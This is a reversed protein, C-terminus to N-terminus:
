PKEPWAHRPYRRSLEKRIAPYSREWFGKLDSTVQVARKNPALLHLTLPLRGGLISPGTTLGFFDQLRSEIWPPRGLAYQVKCKRQSNLQVYSPTLKEFSSPASNGFFSFVEYNWDLSRLESFGIKNEIARIFAEHIKKRSIELKFLDPNSEALTLRALLIELDARDSVRSLREIWVDISLGEEPIPSFGLGSTMLVHSANLRSKPESRNELLILQDFVMRESATVIEKESDWILEETERIQNPKLEFLWDVSIPCLSRVVLRSGTRADKMEQIELAIFAESSDVIQSSSPTKASGGSSFILETEGMRIRSVGSKAERKKAVRDPFGTLICFPLKTEDAMKNARAKGKSGLASAVKAIRFDNTSMQSALQSLADLSELRRESLMAGMVAAEDVINWKEAEIIMRAIRPHAPIEVMRRGLPTIEFNDDLAGLRYLLLRAGELAGNSPRELWPFNLPDIGLTKLELFTQALDARLCEPTDFPTRTDFDHKSYLRFCVGPGTRGARGARQIASARSIPRTELSPIGTWFSYSAMRHLGSDIVISVGEITLSTEAINTSLIVRRKDSKSLALDQQEKTLDGHLPFVVLRKRVELSKLAAECKRIEAMGPLFVLIDGNHAMARDVAEVVRLELSKTSLKPDLYNMEVSHQAQEVSIRPCEGLFRSLYAADLTASMVVLKIPHNEILQLNRLYAIAVDGHISREHFEDFVVAGVNDLKPNAVLKRMLMGETVFKLRTEPGTVNEFRFQYGVKHGLKESLEEAVRRAAFQAALRRPELVLIEQKAPLFKWKMLAPPIRTTKGTGPSAQVVVCSHKELSELVQPIIADVPLLRPPTM